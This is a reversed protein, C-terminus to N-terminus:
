PILSVLRSCVLGKAPIAAAPRGCLEQTDLIDAFTKSAANEIMYIGPRLKGDNFLSVPNNPSATPTM